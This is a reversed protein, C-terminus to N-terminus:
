SLLTSSSVKVEIRIITNHHMYVFWNQEEKQGIEDNNLFPVFCRKRCGINTVGIM